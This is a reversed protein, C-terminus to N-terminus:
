YIVRANLKRSISHLIRTNIRTTQTPVRTQLHFNDVFGPLNPEPYFNLFLQQAVPNISGSPIACGVATRAGFPHSPGNAVFVCPPTPMDCFNGVNQREALTPVTSFQDVANRAWASEVNVFFFTKDSGNYVHPIRLPGGINGGTRESWTPIKPPDVATFSYPRANFAS